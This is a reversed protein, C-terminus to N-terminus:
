LINEYILLWTVFYLKSTKRGDSTVIDHDYIAYRCESEPLANMFDSFTASPSGTTDVAVNSGEIKYLIYRYKRRMKLLKFEKSVDETPTIVSASVDEQHRTSKPVGATKLHPEAM